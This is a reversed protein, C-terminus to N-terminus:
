KKKTRQARHPRSRAARRDARLKNKRKRLALTRKVHPKSRGKVAQKIRPM